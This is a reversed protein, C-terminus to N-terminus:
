LLTGLGSGTRNARSFFGVSFGPLGTPVGSPETQSPKKTRNPIPERDPVPRVPGTGVPEPFGAESRRM